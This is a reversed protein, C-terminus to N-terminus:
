LDVVRLAFAYLIISPSLPQTASESYYLARVTESATCFTSQEGAWQGRPLKHWHRQWRRGLVLRCWRLYSENFEDSAPLRESLIACVWEDTLGVREGKSLESIANLRRGHYWTHGAKM